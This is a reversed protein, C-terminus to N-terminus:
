QIRAIQQAIPEFHDYALDHVTNAIDNDVSNQIDCQIVNVLENSNIISKLFSNLSYVIGGFEFSEGQIYQEVILDASETNVRDCYTAIQASTHCYDLPM